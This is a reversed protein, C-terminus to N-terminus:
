PPSHCSLITPQRQPLFYRQHGPHSVPPGLAAPEKTKAEEREQGMRRCIKRRKVRLSAHLRLLLPQPFVWYKLLCILRQSSVIYLSFHPLCGDCVVKLDLPDKFNIFSYVELNNLPWHCAICFPSQCSFWCGVRFVVLSALPM